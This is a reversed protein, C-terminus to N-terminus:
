IVKYEPSLCDNRPATGWRRDHDRSEREDTLSLPSSSRRERLGIAAAQDLYLRGPM